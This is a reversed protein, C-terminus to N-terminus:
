MALVGQEYPFLWWFPGRTGEGTASGLTSGSPGREAAPAEVGVRGCPLLPLCLHQRIWHVRAALSMGRSEYRLVRPKLSMARPGLSM